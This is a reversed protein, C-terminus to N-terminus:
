NINFKNGKSLNDYKSLYQLNSLVHLGSVLKGNLPIIHDVHYGEPCNAYFDQIDQKEKETIWKPTRQKVRRRALANKRKFYKTDDKKKKEYTNHRSQKVKEQNEKRYKNSKVIDCDKCVYHINDSITKNNSFETHEKIKKCLSCQKYGTIYILHNFWSKSRPKNLKNSLMSSLQKSIGGNDSFGFWKWQIVKDQSYGEILYERSYKKTYEIANNEELIDFAVEM